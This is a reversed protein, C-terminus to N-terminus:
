SHTFVVNRAARRVGIRWEGDEGRELTDDYRGTGNVKLVDDQYVATLYYTRTTARDGDISLVRPNVVIHNSGNVGGVSYDTIWKKLDAQGHLDILPAEGPKFTVIFAGDQTFCDLWDETRRDDIAHSYEYIRDLIGREDQLRQVIPVLDEIALPTM